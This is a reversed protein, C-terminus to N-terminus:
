LEGVVEAHRGAALAVETRDEIAAARLGDLRVAEGRAFDFDAFEGWAPGRWLGLAADFAEIADSLEGATTLRTADVLLREFRSADSEGDDVRLVYGPSRTVIRDGLTGRLRHVYKQVTTLATGPPEDGWVIDVMRDHPVVANANAVLGALVLRQRAGGLNAARGGVLVDFPGLVRFLVQVPADAM